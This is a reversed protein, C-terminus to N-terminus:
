KWLNIFNEQYLEVYSYYICIYNIQSMINLLFFYPGSRTLVSYIQMQKEANRKFHYNNLFCIRCSFKVADSEESRGMIIDWTITYQIWKKYWKAIMFSLFRNVHMKEHDADPKQSWTLKQITICSIKVINLGFRSWTPYLFALYLYTKVSRSRMKM